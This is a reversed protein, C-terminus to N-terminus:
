HGGLMMLVLGSGLAIAIAVFVAESARSMGSISDGSVADRIANTITMGPVLLMIVSIIVKDMSDCLNLRYLIFALFTTIGGGVLNKFFSDFEIGDLKSIFLKLIISVVFSCIADKISGKYFFAFGAACIGAGMVMLSLPYSSEKDILLLRRYFEELPISEECISRSLANVRDIKTLDVTKITTRKVNHVLEDNLSFSIILLTPTAYSDVVDAGYQFCIRRMTDEVRYTEAGSELLIMGAKTAAKALTNCDM